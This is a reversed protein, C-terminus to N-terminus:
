GYLWLTARMTTNHIRCVFSLRFLCVSAYTLEMLPTNYVESIEERSWNTRPASAQVADQFVSSATPLPPQTSPYLPTDLVTSFGRSLRQTGKRPVTFALSRALCRQAMRVALSYPCFWLLSPHLTFLVFRPAIFQQAKGATALFLLGSM